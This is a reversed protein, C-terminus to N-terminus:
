GAGGTRVCLTATQPGRKPDQADREAPVDRFRTAFHKLFMLSFVNRHQQQTLSLSAMAGKFNIIYKHKGASFCETEKESLYVRELTESNVSPTSGSSEGM